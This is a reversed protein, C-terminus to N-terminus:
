MSNFFYAWNGGWIAGRLWLYQNWTIEWKMIFGIRCENRRSYFLEEVKKRLSIAVKFFGLSIPIYINNKKVSTPPFNECLFKKTYNYMKLDSDLFRNSVYQCPKFVCFKLDIRESNYIFFDLALQNTECIKGSTAAVLLLKLCSLLGSLNCYAPDFRELAQFLFSKGFWSIHKM